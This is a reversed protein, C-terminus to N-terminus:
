RKLTFSRCEIEYVNLVNCIGCTRNRKSFTRSDSSKEKKEKQWHNHDLLQRLLEETRLLLFLITEM